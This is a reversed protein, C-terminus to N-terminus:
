KPGKAFTLTPRTRAVLYGALPSSSRLAEIEDHAGGTSFKMKPNWPAGTASTVTVLRRYERVASVLEDLTADYGKPHGAQPNARHLGSDKMGAGRLVVREVAPPDDTGEPSHVKYIPMEGEGGGSLIRWDARRPEAAKTEDAPVRQLFLVVRQGAAYHTWRMACTWDTFRLVELSRGGPVGHIEREIKLHFTHEEVKQITGAVILDARAVMTHFTYPSYRPPASALTAASLAVLALLFRPM